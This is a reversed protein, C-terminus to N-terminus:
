HLVKALAREMSAGETLKIHKDIEEPTPMNPDFYKDRLENLLPTYYIAKWSAIEGVFEPYKEEVEDAMFGITPQNEISTGKAGEIWDWQYVGLNGIEAIQEVNEKLRPDSFAMAATSALKIATATNAAKAQADALIGSSTNQGQQTFGGSIGQAKQAGLQAVNQVGTFGGQALQGQRGSLLQELMLGLEQPIGAITELGTGSRTLGGAALQGQAARTREAVLPDLAGGSFIEALREGFGGITSGQVQGQLGGLGADIFPQFTGASQDFQSQLERIGKDIGANAASAARGGASTSNGM